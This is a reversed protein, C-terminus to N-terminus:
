LKLGKEDIVRKIQHGIEKQDTLKPVHPKPMENGLEVYDNRRLFERHQSRSTIMPRKGTEIDAAAARYPALDGMVLTSLRKPVFALKEAWAKDAEPTGDQYGWMRLWEERTM